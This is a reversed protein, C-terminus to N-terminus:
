RSRRKFAKLCPACVRGYPVGWTTLEAPLPRTPERRGANLMAHVTGCQQVGDVFFHAAWQGWRFWGNLGALLDSM